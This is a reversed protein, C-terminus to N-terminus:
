PERDPFNSPPDLLPLVLQGDDPDLYVARERPRNLDIEFRSRHVVFRTPVEEILLDTFPDEERRRTREDLTMLTAVAPRLDHGAHVATAVVPGNAVSSTFASRM